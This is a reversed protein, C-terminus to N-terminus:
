PAGTEPLPQPKLGAIKIIRLLVTMLNLFAGISPTLRLVWTAHLLASQYHHSYVLQRSLRLSEQSLWRNVAQQVQRQEASDAFHQQIVKAADLSDTVSAATLVLRSTESGSHMRFLSYPRNLYAIPVNAALRAWMEWDPTFILDTSFGGVQEYAQRAVVIGPTRIPNQSALLRLANKLIGNREQLSETIGIWRDFEDVYVSPAIAVPCDQEEMAQQYAAYFGPMVADDDSLIHVWRGRSRQICTNWNAFIGVNQPQRYYTVRGQGVRQVISEFDGETSCDDVVEIQMEDATFGQNLVSLIAQELYDTRNYATIMVSWAPSMESQPLPSEM